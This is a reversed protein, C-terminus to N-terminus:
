LFVLPSTMLARTWIATYVLSNILIGSSSAFHKRHFVAMARYFEYHARLRNRRRSGGKLHFIKADPFYRVAWAKQGARYCLDLDEGYLFFSEDLLGIEDLMARRLMMCAGSVAEVDAATTGDLEPRNYKAFGAHRPFLRSLGSLRYFATVPTPISRHSAPDHRGDFGVVNGGVIGVEPNTDLFDALRHVAGAEVQTDPNLLLFYRGCGVRLAQNVAKAFGLNQPNLIWHVAPFDCRLKELSEQSGNDVVWTEFGSDLSELCRYLLDSSKFNVIVISVASAM